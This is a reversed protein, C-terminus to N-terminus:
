KIMEDFEASIDFKNIFDYLALKQLEYYSTWYTRLQNIYQSQASDYENQATNLDTVTINGKQFRLMSINYRERAIDEALVSIECQRAQNNFQIVMNKINQEFDIEDQEIETNTIELDAEAMKVRGRSLGWDYIPMRLSVGVVERDKLREYAVGFENASQSLGLNVRFDAQLGKQSRAQALARQAELRKLQQSARLTSNKYARTLVTEFDIKVSPVKGPAVLTMGAYQKIGIYSCFSFLQMDFNLRTTNVSMEANLLSLELQLIESRSVTGLGSRKKAIEFLHERDKYNKVSKKYNAEASLVAFFRSTTQITVTQMTELYRRRANEYQLPATKKRWKLSNYSRLPQTYNLTLPNSNYTTKDYSFQDLRALSTRLSLKGGLFAINQDVSISLDNSLSNNDVYSIQGTNPDRVEVISRDYNGLGSQANLAPLLEAKFSRFNWYQGMFGFRALRASSSNKHAIYIAEDLTIKGIKTQGYCFSSFLFLILIIKFKM